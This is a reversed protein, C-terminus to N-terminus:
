LTFTSKPMQLIYMHQVCWFISNQEFFHWKLSFINTTKKVIASYNWAKLGILCINLFIM